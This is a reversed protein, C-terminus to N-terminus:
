ALLFLSYIRNYHLQCVNHYLDCNYNSGKKWKINVFNFHHFHSKQQSICFFYFIIGRCESIGLGGVEQHKHLSTQHTKNWMKLMLKATENSLGLTETKTSQVSEGVTDKRTEDKM